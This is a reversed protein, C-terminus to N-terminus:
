NLSSSRRTAYRDAAAEFGGAEEEVLPFMESDLAAFGPHEKGGFPEEGEDFMTQRANWDRPFPHGFQLMAREVIEASRPMGLMRFGRAAEPAVIGSSNWFFQTFGGNGIEWYALHAGFLLALDERIGRMRDLYLEATEWTVLIEYLPDVLERYSTM